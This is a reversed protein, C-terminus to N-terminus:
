HKASERARPRRPIQCRVAPTSFDRAHFWRGIGCGGTLSVIFCAIFGARHRQQSGATRLQTDSQRRRLLCLEFLVVAFQHIPVFPEIERRDGAVIVNLNLVKQIRQHAQGDDGGLQALHQRQSLRQPKDVDATAGAEGPQRELNDGGLQVDRQHVAGLLFDM